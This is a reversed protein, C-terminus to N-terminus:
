QVDNGQMSDLFEVPDITKYFSLIAENVSPTNELQTAIDNDIIAKFDERLVTQFLPVTNAQKWFSLLLEYRAKQASPIHVTMNGLLAEKMLYLSWSQCFVDKESTQPASTVKLYQEVYSKEQFYKNLLDSIIFSEYIGVKGDPKRAPDIYIVSGVVGNTVIVTIYHTEYLPTKSNTNMEDESEVEAPFNAITMCVQKNKYKPGTITNLYKRITNYYTKQQKEINKRKDIFTVFTKGYMRKPEAPVLTKLIENRVDEEGITRRISYLIWSAIEGRGINIQNNVNSM